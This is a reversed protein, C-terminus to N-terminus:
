QTWGTRSRPRDLVGVRQGTLDARDVRGVPLRVGGEQLGAPVPPHRHAGGARGGVLGVAELEQGGAQAAALADRLRHGPMRPQEDGEGGGAEALDVGALGLPQQHEGAVGVPLALAARMAPPSAAPLAM